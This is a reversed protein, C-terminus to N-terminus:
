VIGLKVQPELEELRAVIKDREEKLKPDVSALGSKRIEELRNSLNAVDAEASVDVSAGTSTVGAAETIGSQKAAKTSRRVAFKDAIDVWQPPTVKGKYKAVLANYEADDYAIGAGDLSQASMAEAYAWDDVDGTRGQVEKTAPQGKELLDTLHSISQKIAGIEKEQSSFRKDKISQALRELVDEESSAVSTPKDGSPTSPVALVPQEVPEPAEQASEVVQEDTTM